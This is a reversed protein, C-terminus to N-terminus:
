MKRNEPKNFVRTEQTNLKGFFGYYRNERPILYHSQELLDQYDDISTPMKQYNKAQKCYKLWKRENDQALSNFGERGNWQLNEALKWKIYYTIATIYSINEPILPYGTEEDISNRTYSLAIEGEQFSFRLRRETTGVITYEDRCSQYPIDRKEKCVISNFFSNQALRVPTFYDTFFSSSVWNAYELKMNWYDQCDCESEQLTNNCPCIFGAEAYVNNKAVQLISQLGIPLGCEFNEVKIFDVCQESLNPAKLFELAEGIWEILDIETAELGKIERNIKAIIRDVAVLGQKM